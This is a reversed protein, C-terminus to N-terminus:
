RAWDVIAPSSSSGYRAADSRTPLAVNEEQQRRTKKNPTPIGCVAGRFPTGTKLELLGRQRSACAPKARRNGLRGTRPAAGVKSSKFTSRGWPFPGSRLRTVATSEYDDCFAFAKACM